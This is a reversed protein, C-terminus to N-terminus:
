GLLQEQTTIHVKPLNDVLGADTRRLEDITAQRCQALLEHCDANLALNDLEQPDKELDYLEEIEGPVLWRIYKYQGTRLSVWWPISNNSEGIALDTESGFARNTNVLLLPREWCQKPDQFLPTLDRGHMKWPLPLGAMSFFTPAIDQGGVPTDCVTGPPIMGPLRAIMPALLNADYPAFKNIFGHQGWALGQDSTFVILTSDLQGTAELAHLV